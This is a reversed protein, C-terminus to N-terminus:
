RILILCILWCNLAIESSYANNGMLNYCHYLRFLLSFLPILNIIFFAAKM